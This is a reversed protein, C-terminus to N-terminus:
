NAKIDRRGKEFARLEGVSLPYWGEKGGCGLGLDANEVLPVGLNIPSARDAKQDCAAYRQTSEESGCLSALMLNSTPQM